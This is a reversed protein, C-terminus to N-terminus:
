STQNESMRTLLMYTRTGKTTKLSDKELSHGFTNLDYPEESVHVKARVQQKKNRYYRFTGEFLVTDHTWFQDEM